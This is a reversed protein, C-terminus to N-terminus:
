LLVFELDLTVNCNLQLLSQTKTKLAGSTAEM